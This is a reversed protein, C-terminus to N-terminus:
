PFDLVGSGAGPLYTCADVHLYTNANVDPLARKVRRWTEETDNM